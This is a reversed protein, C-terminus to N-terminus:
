NKKTRSNKSRSVSEEVSLIKMTKLYNSELAESLSQILGLLAESNEQAKYKEDILVQMGGDGDIYIHCFKKHGTKFECSVGKHFRDLIYAYEERQLLKKRARTHELQEWEEKLIKDQAFNLEGATSFPTGELRQRTSNQVLKERDKKKAKM